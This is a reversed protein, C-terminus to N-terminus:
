FSQCGSLNETCKDMVFAEFRLVASKFEEDTGELPFQM